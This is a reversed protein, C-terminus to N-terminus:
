KIAFKAIFNTTTFKNSNYLWLESTIIGSSKKEEVAEQVYILDSLYLSSHHGM